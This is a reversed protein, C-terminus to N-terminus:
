EKPAFTNIAFGSVSGLLWGFFVDTPHHWGLYVRSLAVLAIVMGILLSFLVQRNRLAFPLAAGTIETTHGSPLSHMSGSHSMPQFLGDYGPRPRGITTKLFRVAMLAIVLQVVIYVGVFRALKRDRTRWAKFLLAAYIVYFAANGFDTVVQLIPTLVPANERYARFYEAVEAESGFSFFMWTLAAVLPASALIWHFITRQTQM